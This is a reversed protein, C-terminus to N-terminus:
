PIWMCRGSVSPTFDNTADVKMVAPDNDIDYKKGDNPLVALDWKSGTNPLHLYNIGVLIHKGDPSFKALNEINNSQTVQNLNNGDANMTYIHDGIYLALQKGDRSVSLNGWNEYNMEKVQTLTSFPPYSRLIKDNFNFLLSGDPMWIAGDGYDFRENNIGRFQYLIEGKRNVIVLGNDADPNILIMSNDPSLFGSHKSSTGYAPTFKFEDIISGDEAKVVKFITTSTTGTEDDSTLRFKGDFSMDWNAFSYSNYRFHVDQIKTNLDISYITGAATFMVRGPYNGSGEQGSGVAEDKNRSCAAAAVLCIFIATKIAFKM